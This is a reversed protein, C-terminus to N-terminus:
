SLSSVSKVTKRFKSDLEVTHLQICLIVITQDPDQVWLLASARYGM